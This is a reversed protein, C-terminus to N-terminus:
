NYLMGTKIMYQSQVTAPKIKITDMFYKNNQKIRKIM